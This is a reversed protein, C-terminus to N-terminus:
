TRTKGGSSEKEEEHGKLRFGYGNELLEKEYCTLAHRLVEINTRSGSMIRLRKLLAREELTVRWRVENGNEIQRAPM